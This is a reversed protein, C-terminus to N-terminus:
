RDPPRDVHRFDGKGFRDPDRREGPLMGFDIGDRDSPGAFDESARSGRRREFWRLAALLLGAAVGIVAAVALVIFGVALIGIAVAVVLIVACWFMLRRSLDRKRDSAPREGPPIIEVRM